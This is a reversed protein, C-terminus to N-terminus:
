KETETVNNEIYGIEDIECKVKDGPKMWLPPKRGAGVGPPTRTFIIDGPKLTFIKSAYSVINPVNFVFEKTNSNQVPEGNLFCRIGLNSPDFPAGGAFYRPNILISPGIPAFTDFSKGALWQGGKRLQWDRASVDNGVTYGGVYDLADAVSVNKAEKGIVVVLEVEYDLENTVQPKVIDDNHGIICSPFKSFLLPEIPVAMNSEKAHDLYNLGVCIVKEPNYLPARIRVDALPIMDDNEVDKIYALAKTALVPGGRLFDKMNKPFDDEETFDVINNDVLAGIRKACRAAESESIGVGRGLGVWTTKSLLEFTVLKLRSLAM